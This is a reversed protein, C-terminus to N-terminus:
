GAAKRRYWWAVIVGLLVLLAGDFISQKVALMAPTPQVAFYIMYTPIVTMLAMAVGFRLGQGLWPKSREHGRAYIWTFAAALLVHALLMIPFYQQSDEPTRFLAGQLATYDAGLLVGHVFFSGAMWAVFLVPWATLFTRDM